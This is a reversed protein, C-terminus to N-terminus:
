HGGGGSDNDRNKRRLHGAMIMRHTERQRLGLETWQWKGDVLEADFGADDDYVVGDDRMLYASSDGDGDPTVEESFVVLPTSQTTRTKNCAGLAV